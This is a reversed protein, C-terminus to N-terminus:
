FKRATGIKVKEGKDRLVRNREKVERRFQQLFTNRDAVNAIKEDDLENLMYEVWGNLNEAASPLRIYNDSLDIDSLVLLPKM